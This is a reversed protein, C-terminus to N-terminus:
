IIFIDELASNLTNPDDSINDPAHHPTASALRDKEREIAEAERNKHAELAQTERDRQRQIADAQRNKEAELSQAELVEVYLLYEAARSKEAELAQAELNEKHWLDEAERNEKAIAINKNTDHVDLVKWGIASVYDGDNYKFLRIKENSWYCIRRFNWGM